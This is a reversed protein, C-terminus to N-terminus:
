QESSSSSTSNTLANSKLTLLKSVIGYFSLVIDKGTKIGVELSKDVHELAPASLNFVTVDRGKFKEVHDKWTSAHIAM